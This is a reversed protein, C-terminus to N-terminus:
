WLDLCSSATNIEKSMKRGAEAVHEDVFPEGDAQREVRLVHRLDARVHAEHEIVVAGRRLSDAMVREVASLSGSLGRRLGLVGDVDGEEGLVVGHALPFPEGDVEIVVLM